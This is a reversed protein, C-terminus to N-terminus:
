AAEPMSTGPWLEEITRGLAQAIQQKLDDSCHLGHVIRSLHAPDVGLKAALDKQAIGKAVIALKLPTAPRTTGM